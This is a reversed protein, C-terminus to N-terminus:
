PHSSAAWSRIALAAICTFLHFNFLVPIRDPAQIAAHLLLCSVWLYAAAAVLILCTWAITPRAAAASQLVALIVLMAFLAPLVLSKLVASVVITPVVTIVLIGPAISEWREQRTLSRQAADRSGADVNAAPNRRLNERCQLVPPEDRRKAGLAHHRLEDRTHGHLDDEVGFRPEKSCGHVRLRHQGGSFGSLFVNDSPWVSSRM